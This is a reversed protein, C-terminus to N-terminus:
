ITLWKVSKKNKLLGHYGSGKQMTTTKEIQTSVLPRFSEVHPQLDVRFKNIFENVANSMKGTQGKQFSGLLKSLTVSVRNGNGNTFEISYDTFNPGFEGGKIKSVSVFDSGYREPLKTATKELVQYLQQDDDDDDDDDADDDGDLVISQNATDNTEAAAASRGPQTTPPGGIGGPTPPAGQATPTPVGLVLDDDDDDDDDAPIIGGVNDFNEHKEQKMMGHIPTTSHDFKGVQELKFDHQHLSTRNQQQQQQYVSTKSAKEIQEQLDYLKELAQTSSDKASLIDKIQKSLRMIKFNNANNALLNTSQQSVLRLITILDNYSLMNSDKVSRDTQTPPPPPPPPQPEFKQIKKEHHVDGDDDIVIIPPNMELTKKRKLDKSYFTVPLEKAAAAAASKM